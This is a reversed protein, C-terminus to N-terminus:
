LKYVNKLYTMIHVYKFCVISLTFPLLEKKM